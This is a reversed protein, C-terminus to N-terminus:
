AGVNALCKGRWISCAHFSPNKWGRVASHFCNSAGKGSSKLCAIVCVPTFKSWNYFRRRYIEIMTAMAGIGAETLSLSSEPDVDRWCNMDRKLDRLMSISNVESPYCQQLIATWKERVDAPLADNRSIAGEVQVIREIIKDRLIQQSDVESTQDVDYFREDDAPVHVGHLAALADGSIGSEIARDIDSIQRNVKIDWAKDDARRQIDAM